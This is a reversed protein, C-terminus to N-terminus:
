KAKVEPKPDKGNWQSDISIPNGNPDVGSATFSGGGCAVLMTCVLGIIVNKIM